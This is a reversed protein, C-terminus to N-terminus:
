NMMSLGVGWQVFNAEGGFCNIVNGACLCRRTSDAAHVIIM